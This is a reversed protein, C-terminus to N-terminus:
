RRRMAALRRGLAEWTDGEKVVVKYTKGEFNVEMTLRGSAEYQLPNFGQRGSTAHYMGGRLRLVLHLTSERRINYDSLTRGDELQAGAFILRQQDPPIGEKDQIKAKVNDITDSAEVILTLTKGTLTKVFIDMGGDGFDLRQILYLTSEKTIGHESLTRGSELVCGRFMLRQESPPMGEKFQIQGALNDVTDTPNCQLRLTEGNVTKVLVPGPLVDGQPTPSMRSDGSPKPTLVLYLTSGRKINYDSLPLRDDLRQKCDRSILRQQDAPIGHM